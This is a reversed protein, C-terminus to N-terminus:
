EKAFKRYDEYTQGSLLAGLVARVLSDPRSNTKRRKGKRRGRSDRLPAGDEEDDGSDVDLNIRCREGTEVIILDGCGTCEFPLKIEHFGVATRPAIPKVDAQCCRSLFNTAVSM